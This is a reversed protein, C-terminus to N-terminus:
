IIFEKDPNDEKWCYICKNKRLNYIHNCKRKLSEIQDAIKDEVVCDFWLIRIKRGQDSFKLKWIHSKNLNNNDICKKLNSIYHMIYSPTITM